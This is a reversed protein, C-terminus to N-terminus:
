LHGSREAQYQRARKFLALAGLALLSLAGPEPVVTVSDIKTQILSGGKYGFHIRLGWDYPWNDLVPPEASLKTSSLAARSYDVLVWSIHDVWVGNSLSLNNYSRLAYADMGTHDDLLEILFNVNGPDTAFVIGNLSLSIGYPASWYQYDGVSSAPNTDRTSTDYTYSGTIIDGISIQGGLLGDRDDLSTVKGTLAIEVIAGQATSGGFGLLVVILVLIKGKAEM